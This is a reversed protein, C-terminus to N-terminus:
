GEGCRGQDYWLGRGIVGDPRTGFTHWVAVYNRGGFSVLDGREYLADGDWAPACQPAVSFADVRLQQSWSGAHVVYTAGRADVQGLDVTLRQRAPVDWSGKAAGTVRFSVPVNSGTNDLVVSVARYSRGQGPDYTPEGLQLSAAPAQVACDAAAYGASVREVFTRGLVKRTLDFTVEGAPVTMAGSAVDASVSRGPAVDGLDHTGYPTRAVVHMAEGSDNRLSPVLVVADAVCRTSVGASVDWAPVYSAGGFAATLDQDFYFTGLVTRTQLFAVRGPKVETSRTDAVLTATQGPAIGRVIPSNPLSGGRLQADITEPSDNTLTAVIKVSGDQWRAEVSVDTAWQPSYAYAAYQRTVTRDASSGDLRTARFTVEGAAVDRAGTPLALTATTGPAVEVPGTTGLAGADMTVSLPAARHDNRFTGTLVASGTGGDVVWDVAASGDVAWRFCDVGAVDHSAVAVGDALVSFTSGPAGVRAELAGTAGGRVRTEGVGAVAFTVPVTSRTNDLHLTVPASSTDTAPDFVCEGVTPAADAAPAYRVASYREAVGTAKGTGDLRTARFTAEGAPLDRAGTDVSLTVEEGPGVEVPASEGAAGADLVVRMPTAVHDNRFTGTLVVSGGDATADWGSEVATEVDWPFCDVGQVPHAALEAGDALVAFTADDRGVAGAVQVDLVEGGPVTRALDDRGQVSFPVPLTSASNDYHLTVAASSRDTAPDFTCLGVSPDTSAPAIAQEEVLLPLLSQYGKGDGDADTHWRYQRLVANARPTDTLGTELVLEGSAGERLPAIAASDPVRSWAGTNPALLRVDMHAGTGNRPVATLRVKGGVNEAVMSVDAATLWPPQTWCDEAAFAGADLRHEFTEDAITTSLVVAARGAPFRVGDDVQLEAKKGHRVTVAESTSGAAEVRVSLDDYATDNTYTALVSAVDPATCRPAARETVGDARAWWDGVDLVVRTSGDHADAADARVTLTHQAAEAGQAAVLLRVDFTASQGPGLDTDTTCSVTRDDAARCAWGDAGQGGGVLRVDDPLPVTVVPDVAVRDGTNRVELRTTADGPNTMPVALADVRRGAGDLASVRVEAGFYTAPTPLFTRRVPEVGQARVSGEFTYEGGADAQVTVALRRSEGPGLVGVSCSVLSTGGAQPQAAGCPVTETRVVTAVSSGGVVRATPAQVGPPLVLDVFVQEAARGGSNSATVVLDAPQRAALQVSGLSLDLAAPQVPPPPDPPVTGPDGPPPTVSVQEGVPPPAQRGDTASTGPTTATDEVPATGLADGSPVNAPSAPDTAPDTTGDDPTTSPDGASPAETSTGGPGPEQTSTAATPEDQPPDEPTFAGLAGAVGLGAVAVVGAAVAAAALPASAVLAALGTATAAAATGAGGAVAGVTAAGTAAVGAVSGGAVSTGAAAASTAATGTAATGTAATGTAATGSAATGTSAAGTSTSAGASGASGTGAGGSGTAGSGAGGSGTGGASGSGGGAAAALAAAGAGVGAGGGVPLATGVLGLAGVGLVLPAIVARMGHSVDGLELVLARCDGCGELHAEVRATERKALGGRVFSGLLSSVGECEKAPVSSLHQQLYAQRLGERARYALASVGNATLGLIPAIEAPSLSEVETYWLVARWREPLTQYARTVVSREFGELTPDETSAMPGFASEFTREDDTPETRRAGKVLDYSLRRVVTFLYARFTVDPGGGNQLVSLTRAFADSVVDDADATSRVYQRAVTRAAAAHREYLVGFASADGARVATILEADSFAESGVHSRAETM